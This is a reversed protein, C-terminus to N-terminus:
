HTDGLIFISFKCRILTWDKMKSIAKTFVNCIQDEDLNTPTQIDIFDIFIIKSYNSFPSNQSLGDIHARSKFRRFINLAENFGDFLAKNHIHISETFIGNVGSGISDAQDEVNAISEM